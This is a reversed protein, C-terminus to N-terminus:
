GHCHVTGDPHRGCYGLLETLSENLTAMTGWEGRGRILSEFHEPRTALELQVRGILMGVTQAPLGELYKWSPFGAERLAPSYNYTFNVSHYDCCGDATVTVDVSMAM